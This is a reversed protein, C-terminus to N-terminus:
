ALRQDIRRLVGPVEAAPVDGLAAMPLTGLGGALLPEVPQRWARVVAYRFEAIREGSPLRLELVGTLDSVDAEPRLLVVGSWVRLDHRVDLMANYRRLRRPLKPDRSSQM